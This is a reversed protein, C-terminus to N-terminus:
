SELLKKVEDLNNVIKWAAKRLEGSAYESDLLIGHKTVEFLQMDNMGDGVAVCETPDINQKKCFELLQTKKVSAQDVEYYLDVLEDDENFHLDANAYYNDIGLRGAVYAAYTNTAGSILCLTYGRAKLWNVVSFAEDRIPWSSYVDKVKTKNSNGTAQWLALLKNKAQKYTLKGESLGAHITVHDDKSAGIDHTFQLWSNHEILTGDLDFIVTRIKTM